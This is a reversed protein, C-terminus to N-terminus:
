GHSPAQANAAARCRLNLCYFPPPQVVPRGRREREALIEVSGERQQKLLGSDPGLDLVRAQGLHTTQVQTSNATEEEILRSAFFDYNKREPVRAATFPRGQLFTGGFGANSRVCKLAAERASL